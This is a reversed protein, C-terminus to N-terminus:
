RCKPKVMKEQGLGIKREKNNKNNNIRREEGSARKLQVARSTHGSDGLPLGCQPNAWVTSLDIQGDARRIM